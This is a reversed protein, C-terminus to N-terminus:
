KSAYEQILDHVAKEISKIWQAHKERSVFGTEGFNLWTINEVGCFKLTGECFVWKLANNYEKRHFDDPSGTSTVVTAGKIHNLLPSPVQGTTFAFGPTLVKDMWGKLMAPMVNWWIPFIFILYEAAKLRQQYEKVIPDLIKGEAYVALEKESFVPNFDERNLDLLDFEQGNEKLVKTISELIAFNFSGQWPHDIIIHFKM